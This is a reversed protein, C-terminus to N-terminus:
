ANRLTNEVDQLSLNQTLDKAKMQALQYVTIAKSLWRKSQYYRLDINAKLDAICSAAEFTLDQRVAISSGEREYFMHQPHTAFFIVKRFM